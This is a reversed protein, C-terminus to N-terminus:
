VIINEREQEGIDSAYDQMRFKLGGWMLRARIVVRESFMDCRQLLLLSPRAFCRM